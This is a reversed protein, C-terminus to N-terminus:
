KSTGAPTLKLLKVGHPPVTESVADVREGIDKQSWVDRARQAGSLGLDHWSVSITAPEEDRNFLGIAISGDELPKAYVSHVEDGAVRTAQKGLPDQDIDIVEDNTLLGLTFRDLQTLDCGILMPASSMAWLSIHTYQENPTLRTPRVNPGWGVKGVVLMDPDNWHGPGAHPAAKEQRFGISSMSGWSDSIDGTTRWLQGDVDAGWEWVQNDGYQCLSYVIDRQQARLADRMLVYPAMRLVRESADPNARRARDYERGYSCWDYKLYDIGWDSFTAADSAEHGLSGAVGGCTWEGPSSYIGIKLGRAHVYGTLAHMDPFKRNPLVRGGADRVPGFMSKDKNPRDEGEGTRAWGDDMNIYTWGHDILGASVFADAAARVKADDIAMGWVNWSNWGMPPTLSLKDGIEIRWSKSTDGRANKASVSIRYTGPRAVSGSIVHREPDFSLGEPLDSVKVDIPKEGTVPVYILVPAGPRAGFARAGNIRPMPSVPPTFIVAPEIVRELAQPPAGTYDFRAEAWDAHDYNMGDGADTVRLLLKKTGALPLDIQKAADGTRMTGSRFLTKGDGSVIFEVSGPRDVEDDAGVKARFRTAGNVDILLYADAHSGLGYTFSTKGITLAHGDVSKDIGPKGWGQELKTLDLGALRLEDAIALSSCLAISTLALTIKM